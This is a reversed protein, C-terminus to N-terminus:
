GTGSEGTILVSSDSRAVKRVRDLVAMLGKSVGAIGSRNFSSVTKSPVDVSGTIKEATAQAM